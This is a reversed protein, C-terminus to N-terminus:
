EKREYACSTTGLRFGSELILILYKLFVMGESSTVVEGDSEVARDYNADVDFIIDKYYAQQQEHM